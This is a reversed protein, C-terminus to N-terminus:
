NESILLHSPSTELYMKEQVQYRHLFNFSTHITRGRWMRKSLRTTVKELRKTKEDLMFIDDVGKFELYRGVGSRILIEVLEGECSLLKPALDLNYLRSQRLADAAAKLFPNLLHVSSATIVWEVKMTLCANRSIRQQTMWSFHLILEAKQSISEFIRTTQPSTVKISLRRTTPQPLCANYKM